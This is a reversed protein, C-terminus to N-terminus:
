SSWSSPSSINQELYGQLCSVRAREKLGNGSVINSILGLELGILLLQTTALPVNKWNGHCCITSKLMRKRPIVKPIKKNKKTAQFFWKKLIEHKETKIDNKKTVKKKEQWRRQQKDNQSMSCLMMLFLIWQQIIKICSSRVDEKSGAHVWVAEICNEFSWNIYLYVNYM